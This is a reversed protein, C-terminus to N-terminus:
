GMVHEIIKAAVDIGTVKSITLGPSPNVELILPGRSSDIIDVGAYLLGFAKTTQVALSIEQPTPRYPSAIGGTHLNARFDESTSQRTMAAVCKDGVVLLRKDQKGAEAIFEQAIFAEQDPYSNEFHRYDTQNNILEVGIGQNGNLIKVVVPYSEPEDGRTQISTVPTPIGSKLLVEYTEGKDFGQLMSKIAPRHQKPMRDLTDIYYQRSRPAICFIAKNAHTLISPIDDTGIVAVIVEYGRELAANYLALTKFSAPFSTAIVLDTM